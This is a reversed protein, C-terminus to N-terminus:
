FIDLIVPEKCLYRHVDTIVDRETRRLILFTESLILLYFSFVSKINLVKRVFM